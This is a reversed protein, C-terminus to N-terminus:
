TRQLLTQSMENETQWAKANAAYNQSAQTLNTLSEAMDVNSMELNQGMLWGSGLTGPPVLQEQGTAIDNDNTYVGNNSLTLGEPNIFMALQIQYIPIPSYNNDFNGYINGATDSSISRLAGALRGDSSITGTNANVSVETFNTTNFSITSPALSQQNIQLWQLVLPDKITPLAATTSDFGLAGGIDGTSPVVKIMHNGVPKLLISYSPTDSNQVISAQMAPSGVPNLTTDANIAAVINSLSLSTTTPITIIIDTGDCNITISSTTVTTPLSKSSKLPPSYSSISISSAGIFEVQSVQVLGDARQNALTGPETTYTEFIWTNANIKKGAMTFGHKGAANYVPFNTTVSPQVQGGAINNQSDYPNYNTPLTGLDLGLAALPADQTNFLNIESNTSSEFLLSNNGQTNDISGFQALIQGLEDMSAYRKATSQTNAAISAINLNTYLAGTGSVTLSNDASIPSVILQSNTGDSQVQARVQGTQILKSAILKLAEGDNSASSLDNPSITIGNITLSGTNSTTLTTNASVFSNSLSFGGFICNMAKSSITSEISPKDQILFSNGSKFNPNPQLLDTNQLSQNFTDVPMVFMQSTGSVITDTSLIFNPTVNQTASGELFLTGPATKIPQLEKELEGTNNFDYMYGQLLYKGIYELNGYNDYDFSATPIYYHQSSDIGKTLVLLGKGDIAFNNQIGDYVLSGQTSMDLSQYTNSGKSGMNDAELSVPISIFKKFGPTALNAINGAATQVQTQSTRLGSLITNSRM